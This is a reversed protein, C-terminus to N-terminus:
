LIKSTIAHISLKGASWRLFTCVDKAQQSQTAPTGDKYEIGEDFLQQPRSFQYINLTTSLVWMSIVGGPFYPNYAKGEDVKV